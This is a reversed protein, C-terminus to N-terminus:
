NWDSNSGIQLEIVDNINGGANEKVFKELDGHMRSMVIGLSFALNKAQNIDMRVEKARSSEAGQVQKIFQQLPQTNIPETSM